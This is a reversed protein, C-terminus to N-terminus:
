GRLTLPCSDTLESPGFFQIPGPYRYHDDLEWSKKLLSFSIFSKHKIDVLTKKVVPTEKGKRIEMGMMPVLPAAKVIWESPPKTLHSLGVVVGTLRDRVALTAALGLSYALNADFNTPFCCRGEYGFFHEQASFGPFTQQIQEILLKETQIQSINLNGHPDTLLPQQSREKAFEILGEPVLIVGYGRGLARRKEAWAGIEEAIQKLGKGEEGILVINPQTALACEQTIHSASRGMLKVFHFYKKASLADRSLNGILESYTKCASDFGFSLEVEESRLDGDITKPVGVVSINVKKASFFEALHAANTNSDDGGVVILGDLKHGVCHRLVSEMQEKTEIKARGTGILDFGGQNKVAALENPKLARFVNEIVGPAGGLFGILDAGADYLGCLVNHGGAAPGGSFFVGLRMQRAEKEGKELRYVDGSFTNPFLAKMEENARRNESVFRVKTRDRLMKPIVPEYESRWRDLMKM